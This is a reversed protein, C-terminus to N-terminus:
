NAFRKRYDEGDMTLTKCMQYLRSRLRAGIRDELTEDAPTQREDPYNTTLLTLKKANYRGNIILALTDQVWETPRMAGLEDLVIVECDFLPALVDMETLRTNPNYSQQIDKLLARYEYFRCAVGKEILGRLIAVALHTKGVGISGQFLIGRDVVPYDRVLANAYTLARMQSMYARDPQYSQLTSERYLRPIGAAELLATQRQELRCHCPRVGKGEFFAWGTGSCLACSPANPIPTERGHEPRRDETDAAVAYLANTTAPESPM